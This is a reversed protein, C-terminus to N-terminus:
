IRTFIWQRRLLTLKSLPKKFWLIKTVASQMQRRMFLVDLQIKYAKNETTNLMKALRDQFANALNYYKKKFIALREVTVNTEIVPNLYSVYRMYDQNANIIGALNKQLLPLHLLQNYRLPSSRSM